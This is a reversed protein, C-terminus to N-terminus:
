NINDFDKFEKLQDENHFNSTKEKNEPTKFVNPDMAKVMLVISRLAYKGIRYRSTNWHAPYLGKLKLYEIAKLILQDEYKSVKIGYGISMIRM